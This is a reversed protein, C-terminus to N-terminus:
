RSLRYGAGRVTELPADGGAAELRRRLYGVYVPVVNTRPSHEYDWVERLLEEQSVVQGARRMLYVLLEFERGSIQIPAGNREVRRSLLDVRIGAAELKTEADAPQRLHARVRAALEEFSFPKTVYDSAGRDLGQVREGIEDRATLVIVPLGPKVERVAALVDLGDRRPLTLDLIMLDVAEDLARREASEGDSEHIVTYGEARLGRVLFDSIAEEDEVVLLQM